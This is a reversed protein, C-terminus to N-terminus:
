EPVIGKQYSKRVDESKKAQKADAVKMPNVRAPTAKAKRANEALFNRKVCSQFHFLLNCWWVMSLPYVRSGAPLWRSILM